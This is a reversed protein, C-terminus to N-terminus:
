SCPSCGARSSAMPLRRGSGFGSMSAYIIGPNRAKFSEYDIGLKKVVGPRFNEIVIDAKEALKM